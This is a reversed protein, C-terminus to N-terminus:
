TLDHLFFLFFFSGGVRTSRLPESPLLGHYFTPGIWLGLIPHVGYGMVKGHFLWNALLRVWKIDSLRSYNAM